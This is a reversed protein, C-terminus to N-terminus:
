VSFIKKILYAFFLSALCYITSFIFFRVAYKKLCYFTISINIINYILNAFAFCYITIIFSRYYYIGIILSIIIIAFQFFATFLNIRQKQIAVRCYTICNYCFSFVYQLALISAIVGATAWKDGLLFLFLKDGFIMLVLVPIFAIIMIKSVLSYTFDAINEGDRYRQSVSRFYVTQIPTAILATPTGLISNCMSYNGLATNGYHSSLLQNPMQNTFTGMLNSPYQYIIFNKYEKLVSLCLSVSPVKHFPNAKRIM